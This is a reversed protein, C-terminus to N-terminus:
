YLVQRVTQRGEFLPRYQEPLREVIARMRERASAVNTNAAELEGRAAQVRSRMMYAQARLEPGVTRGAQDAPIADLRRDAEMVRKQRLEVDALLILCRAEISLQGLKRAADLSTELKNRGADIRGAQADLSGALARAEVAAPEPITDGWLASAREFSSLAERTQGVEYAREGRVLWLLAQLPKNPAAHLEREATDLETAATRLDGLRVDSRALRIRAETSRRGTGDKLADLLTQRAGDYDGMEFQSLGVFTTMVTVNEALNRERAIALGRNLEGIADEHRGQNRFYTAIVRLCFTQFNKDGLHEFVSLANRADLIGEEPDGYEVLMAGRNAQIRAARSEDRWAQYMKYAQQYYDAAQPRHGLAVHAIGLNNMIIPQLPTNGSERAHNLAREGIAISQEYDGQTGAVIALYYEARALNYRYDLAEFIKRAAEAHSRAQNRDAANGGVLTDALCLLSQGEGGSAGIARYADLAAQGQKRSELPENLKSPAYLRCLELRPRLLRPDAKLADHYATVAENSRVQRDLFAALEMTWTTDNPRAAVLGRYAREAGEMDRRAESAVAQAFLADVDPTRFTVAAMSQAAADAAGKDDKTLQAARSLWALLLPDRPDRETAEQFSQRASAFELDEYWSTGDAFAKAAEL